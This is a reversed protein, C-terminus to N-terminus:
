EHYESKNIIKLNPTRANIGRKVPVDDIYTGEMLCGSFDADEDFIREKPSISVFKCGRLDKNHVVQPDLRLNSYSFDVGAILINGWNVNDLNIYPLYPLWKKKIRKVGDVIDFLYKSTLTIRRTEGYGESLEKQIELIELFKQELKEELVEKAELRRLEFSVEERAKHEKSTVFDSLTEFSRVYSDPIIMKDIMEQIDDLNIYFCDSKDEDLEKKVRYIRVGGVGNEAKLYFYCDEFFGYRFEVRTTLPVCMEAFTSVITEYYRFIKEVRSNRKNGYTIVANNIITGIAKIIGNEIVYEENPNDIVYFALRSRSSKKKDIKIKINLDYFFANLCTNIKNETDSIFQTVFESFAQLNLNNVDYFRRKPAESINKYFDKKIFMKQLLGM